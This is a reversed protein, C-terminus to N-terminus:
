FMRISYSMGFPLTDISIGIAIPPALPMFISISRRAAPPAWCVVSTLGSPVDSVIAPWWQSSRWTMTSPLGDVLTQMELSSPDKAIAFMLGAPRPADAGSQAAANPPRGINGSFTVPASPLTNM